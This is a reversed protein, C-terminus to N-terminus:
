SDHVRESLPARLTLRQVNSCLSPLVTQRTCLSALRTGQDFLLIRIYKGKAPGDTWWEWARLTRQGTLPDVPALPGQLPGDAGLLDREFRAREPSDRGLTLRWRDPKFAFMMAPLALPLGAPGDPTASTVSPAIASSLRHETRAAAEDTSIERVAWGDAPPKQNPFCLGITPASVGLKSLEATIPTAYHAACAVWTERNIPPTLRRASASACRWSPASM